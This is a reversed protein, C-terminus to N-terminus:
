IKVNDTQLQFTLSLQLGRSNVQQALAYAQLGARLVISSFSSRLIASPPTIALSTSAAPKAIWVSCPSTTAESIAAISSSAPPTSTSAARITGAHGNKVLM